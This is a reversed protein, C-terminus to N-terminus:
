FLLLVIFIMPLAARKSSVPVSPAVTTHSTIETYASLPVPPGFATGPVSMENVQDGLTRHGGSWLRLVITIVPWSAASEPSVVPVNERVTVLIVLLSSSQPSVPPGSQIPTPLVLPKTLVV